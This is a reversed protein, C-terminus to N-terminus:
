GGGVIGQLDLLYVAVQRLSIMQNAVYLPLVAIFFVLFPLYIRMFRKVFWMGWKEVHKHGYLFGSILLFVQVGTNFVWAWHNGFSQLFHCAVISAMALVRLHSIAASDYKSLTTTM